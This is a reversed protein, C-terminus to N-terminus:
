LIEYKAESELSKEDLLDIEDMLYTRFSGVGRREAQMRAAAREGCVGMVTLSALAAAFGDRPFAALFAASLASLMCGAGTIRTLLPTGNKGYAVRTGDTLLDTPGTVMVLSGTDAALKRALAAVADLGAPSLDSAGADVGETRGGGGALARIESANGKILTPAYAMLRRATDTRLPSAGAGVPDLVLPLGEVAAKKAAKEMATVTRENLTGINLNLAHCLSLIPEVEDAADAMIASAGVALLINACDTATVYNTINHVRPHMQRVATLCPGIM